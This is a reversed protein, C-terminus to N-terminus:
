LAQLRKTQTSRSRASVRAAANFQRQHGSFLRVSLVSECLTCSVQRTCANCIYRRGIIWFNEQQGVVLRAPYHSVIGNVKTDDSGCRPCQLTTPKMNADCEFYNSHTIRPAWVCVRLTLYGVIIEAMEEVSPARFASAAKLHSSVIDPKELWIGNKSARIQKLM